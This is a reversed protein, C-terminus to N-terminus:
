CSTSKPNLLATDTDNKNAPVKRFEEWDIDDLIYSDFHRDTYRKEQGLSNKPENKSNYSSQITIYQHIYYFLLDDLAFRLIELLSQANHNQNQLNM